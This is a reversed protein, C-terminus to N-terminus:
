KTIDKIKGSPTAINPIGDITCDSYNIECNIYKQIKAYQSPGAKPILVWAGGYDSPDPNDLLGERDGEGLDLVTSTLKSSRFDKFRDIFPAFEEEKIDTDISDKLIGFLSIFKQPNLFTDLSFVKDKFATIIKTQRKSRAFDSGEPGLAHRSRVYKLATTGDVHTDGKDFHLHEYRCPFFAQLEQEASHSATYNTIEEPSHSCPDDEKGTIPYVYDDFTKDVTIDLGGVEDIAKTFGNFDIRFGYHIPQGLITSLAEKDAQLGSGKKQEESFAYISNIKSQQEPIWLDRPISVLTTKKNKPDLSAFIISDTLDPGDHTGGGIGLLLINTRGDPTKKIVDDKHFVYTSVVKAVKASQPAIKIMIIVIVFVVIIIPILVKKLM